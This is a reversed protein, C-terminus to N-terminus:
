HFTVSLCKMTKLFLTITQLIVFCSFPLRNKSMNSMNLNKSYIKLVFSVLINTIIPRFNNFEKGDVFLYSNDGSYHLSSCFKAKTKNLNYNFKKRTTGISHNIDDTPEIGLILFFSNKCSCTHVSASDDVGFIIVNRYFDIGIM